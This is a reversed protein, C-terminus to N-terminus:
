LKEWTEASLPKQCQPCKKPMHEVRTEWVYGCVTHKARVFKVMPIYNNESRSWRFYVCLPCKSPRLSAPQACQYCPKTKKMKLLPQLEAPMQDWKGTTDTQSAPVTVTVTGSDPNTTMPVRGYVTPQM